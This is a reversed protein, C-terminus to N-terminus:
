CSSPRPTWFMCETLAPSFFLKGDSSFTQRFTITKAPDGTITVKKIQKLKGNELDKMDVLIVDSKGAFKGDPNTLNIVIVFHKMDPSNTGHIFKYTGVKYGLDSIFLRHKKELTKKDFVDIYGETGMMVPIFSTKTQGSACYIPVPGKTRPDLAVSVDALKNGTKLDSKGVHAMGAADVVITSWFLTGSDGSDVRADHTPHSTKNGIEVRGLDTVKIPSDTSSPDITVAVQAFHGGEGAVYVTGTYTKGAATAVSASKTGTVSFVMYGAVAVVLCLTVLLIKRTM